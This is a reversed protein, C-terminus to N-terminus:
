AGEKKPETAALAATIAPGIRNDGGDGGYGSGQPLEEWDCEDRIFVLVERLQQVKAESATLKDHLTLITEAFNDKEAESEALKAHLATLEDQLQQFEMSAIPISGCNLCIPTMAQDGGCKCCKVADTRPTDSQTPTVSEASGFVPGVGKYEEFGSADIDKSLQEDTVTRLYEKFEAVLQKTMKDGYGNLRAVESDRPAAYHLDNAHGSYMAALGGWSADGEMIAWGDFTTRSPLLEFEGGRGLYVAGTPMPPMNEPLPKM